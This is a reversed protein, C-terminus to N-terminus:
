ILIVPVSGEESGETNGLVVSTSPNVSDTLPQRIQHLEIPEFTTPHMGNEKVFDTLADFDFVEDEMGEVWGPKEIEKGTLPCTGWSHKAQSPSKNTKSSHQIDGEKPPPQPLVWMNSQTTSNNTITDDPKNIFAILTHNGCFDIESLSTSDDLEDAEFMLTIDKISLKLLPVLLQKIQLINHQPHVRLTFQDGTFPSEVILDFQSTLRKSKTLSINALSALDQQPEDPGPVADIRVSTGPGALSIQQYSFKLIINEGDKGNVFFRIIDPTSQTDVEMVLRDGVHLPSHCPKSNTKNLGWRHIMGDSSCLGCSVSLCSLLYVLSSLTLDDLRVVASM